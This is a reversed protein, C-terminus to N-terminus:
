IFDPRITYGADKLQRIESVTSDAHPTITTGEPLESPGFAKGNYVLVPQGHSSAAHDTTFEVLIAVTSTDMINFPADPDVALKDIFGKM